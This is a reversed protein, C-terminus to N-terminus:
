VLKCLIASRTNWASKYIKTAPASLINQLQTALKYVNIKVALADPLMKIDYLVKLGMKKM